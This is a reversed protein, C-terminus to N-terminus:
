RTDQIHQGKKLNHPTSVHCSDQSLRLHVWLESSIEDVLTSCFWITRPSSFARWSRHRLRFFSAFGKDVQKPPLSLGPLDLGTLWAKLTGYFGLTRQRITLEGRREKVKIWSLEQNYSRGTWGKSTEWWKKRTTTGPYPFVAVIWRSWFSFTHSRTPQLLIDWFMRHPVNNPDTLLRIRVRLRRPSFNSHFSHLLRHESISHEANDHFFKSLIQTQFQSRLIGRM